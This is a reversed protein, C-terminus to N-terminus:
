RTLSSYVEAVFRYYCIKPKEQDNCTRACELPSSYNPLGPAPNVKTWCTEEIKEREDDVGGIIRKPLTDTLIEIASHKM